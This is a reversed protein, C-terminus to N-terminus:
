PTSVTVTGVQGTGFSGQTYTVGALVVKLVGDDGYFITGVEKNYANGAIQTIVLETNRGIGPNRFINFQLEVIRIVENIYSQSYEVPARPLRATIAAPFDMM